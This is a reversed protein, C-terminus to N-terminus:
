AHMIDLIPRAVIAKLMDRHRPWPTNDFIVGNLDRGAKKKDMLRDDRFVGFQKFFVKESGYKEVLEEIWQPNLAWSKDSTNSAGGVIISAAHQMDLSLLSSSLPEASIWARGTSAWVEALQDWRRGHLYHDVTVGPWVQPPLATQWAKPTLKQILHPRHTLLLWNLAPTREVVEILEARWLPDVEPDLWDGLSLSFVSFPYGTSQAVKSLQEINHVWTKFKHRPAQPGWHNEGGIRAMFSRAYCISCGSKAGQNAPIETCGGWPNITFDAWEIGTMRKAISKSLGTM